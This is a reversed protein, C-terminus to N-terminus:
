WRSACTVPELAARLQRLTEAADREGPRNPVFPLGPQGLHRAPEAPHRRGAAPRLSLGPETGGSANLRVGLEAALQRAADVAVAETQQGRAFLAQDARALGFGAEDFVLRQLYVERVGIQAALRVFEPLQGITDQL